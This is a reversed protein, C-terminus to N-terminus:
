GMRSTPTEPKTAEGGGKARSTVALTLLKPSPMACKAFARITAQPKACYGAERKRESAPPSAPSLEGRKHERGTFVSIFKWAKGVADITQPKGTEYALQSSWMLALANGITFNTAAPDFNSFATASYQNPPLEVFSSM